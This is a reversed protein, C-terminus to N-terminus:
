REWEEQEEIDYDLKVINSIDGGNLETYCLNYYACDWSCDKTINRVYRYNPNDLAQKMHCGSYIFDKLIESILTHSKPLNVRIFFSNINNKLYNLMDMYDDPNLGNDIIAKYYTDYDTDINKRKSLEGNKLLSPVTPVKSRIYNYSVGVIDNKNFKLKSSLRNLIYYYLTLQTDNMRFEESPMTKMTKHDLAWIGMSDRYILDIKGTLNIPLNPVRVQFPVEVGIVEIDKHWDEYYKIYREMITKIDKDLEGFEIKEEEFLKDWVEQKYKKYGITWDGHKYLSELCEHIWSGRTLPLSSKRKVLLDVYRYKWSMPCRRWKKVKSNSINLVGDEDVKGCRITTKDDDLIKGMIEGKRLM